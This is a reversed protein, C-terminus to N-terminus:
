AYNRVQPTFDGVRATAENALEAFLRLDHRGASAYAWAMQALDMPLFGRLRGRSAATLADWVSDDGQCHLHSLGWALNVLAQPAAGVLLPQQPSPGQSSATTAQQPGHQGAEKARCYVAGAPGPQQWGPRQHGRSAAAGEGKGEGEESHSPISFHLVGHGRCIVEVTRQWTEPHPVHALKGWAWVANAVERSTYTPLHLAFAVDLHELMRHVIAATTPCLSSAAEPVQASHLHIRTGGSLGLVIPLMPVMMPKFVTYSGNQVANLVMLYLVAFGEVTGCTCFAIHM